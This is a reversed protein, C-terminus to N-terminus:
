LRCCWMLDSAYPIGGAARPQRKREEMAAKLGAKVVAELGVRATVVEVTMDEVKAVVKAAVWGVRAAKEWVSEAVTEEAKGVVEAAQDVSPVVLPASDALSDAKRDM